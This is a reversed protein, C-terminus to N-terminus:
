GNLDERAFEEFDATLQEVSEFEIEDDRIIECFDDAANAFTISGNEDAIERVKNIAELGKIM